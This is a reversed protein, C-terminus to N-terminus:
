RADVKLLAAALEVENAALARTVAPKCTKCFFLAGPQYELSARAVKSMSYHHHACAWCRRLAVAKAAIDKAITSM